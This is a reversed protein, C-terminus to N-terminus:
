QGCNKLKNLLVHMISSRKKCKLRNGSLHMKQRKQVLM